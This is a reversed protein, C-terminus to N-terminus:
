KLEKFADAVDFIQSESFPKGIIQLGVPLNNVKGCPIALGPMGALDLPATFVDCLYMTLPDSVNEGIKFATNPTTPALIVDVNEFAKEFDKKILTRVKQAKLYYADYYGASLVYTGILIRRRVEEGFGEGRSKLYVDLLNECDERNNRLASYGYKIGDFRAMNASVESPVIIYYTAIAYETHPLSIEEIKAGAKEYKKIAEKILVEVGKDMGDIFYEKPVGIRLNEIKIKEKPATNSVTAMQASTSDLPDPGSIGDFAIRADESTKALVGVHDLSCAMAIVGYRSVAGYTPKIGVIGSFSSPQRISGGTDTGLAFCCMDSAVAAASGSSSGGPVRELDNPNKTPGYASNEGSAGMAFEDMNTKGLIVIGQEKLKTIVTADYPAIYNELIKSGATCKLGKVLILDKVAIPVGALLPIDEGNAIMEDVKGAQSLALDKSVTLFANIEKDKKEINDLYANCLDIALFQKSKLGEHIEKISLKTLEM